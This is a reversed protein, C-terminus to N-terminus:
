LQLASHRVWVTLELSPIRTPGLILGIELLCHVKRFLRRPLRLAWGQLFSVALNVCSWPREKGNKEHRCSVALARAQVANKLSFIPPHADTAPHVNGAFRDSEIIGVFSLHVDKSYGNSAM